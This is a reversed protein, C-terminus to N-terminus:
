WKAPACGSVHWCCCSPGTAGLQRVLVSRPWWNISRPPPSGRRCAPTGRIAPIARDLGAPVVGRVALFRLFSRVAVAPASRGHGTKTATEQRIFDVVTEVSLIAWDPTGTGFCSSLFRRVTTGYRQRTAPAAGVVRQLHDDYDALWPDHSSDDTQDM